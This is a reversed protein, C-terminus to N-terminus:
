NGNLTSSIQMDFSRVDSVQAAIREQLASTVKAVWLVLAEEQDQPAAHTSNPGSIKQLTAVVREAVVVERIYLAMMAEIVALHASQLCYVSM